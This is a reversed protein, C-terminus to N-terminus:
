KEIKEFNKETSVIWAECVKNKVWIYSLVCYSIGFFTLQKIINKINRKNKRSKRLTKRVWSKQVTVYLWTSILMRIWTFSTVDINSVSTPSWIHQQFSYSIPSRNLINTVSKICQSFWWCVSFLRWCLSEAVLMEFWDGDYLWWCLSTVLMVTM